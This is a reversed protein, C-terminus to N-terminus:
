PAPTDPSARLRAVAREIETLLDSLLFPKQIVPIATSALVQLLEPSFAPLNATVFIFAHRSALQPDAMVTQLMEGGNMRPMKYDLLVVLPRASARILALGGMGDVAEGVTYGEYELLGRLSARIDPEDDVILIHWDAANIPGGTQESSPSPSRPPDHAGSLQYMPRLTPVDLRLRDLVAPHVANLSQSM